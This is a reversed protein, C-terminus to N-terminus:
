HLSALVKRADAAGEFDPKLELARERARRAEVKDGAQSYALGLHYHFEPNQPEKGVAQKLLPVALSGLQKRIYVFALTDSVAANEPLAAKATQALQLARDLQEGRTAYMWALNNAAVPARPNTELLREYRLRAEQEKGQAQLVLAAMTQAGTSGPQRAALKDYEALAQDLKRQSVYIQALLAYADFNAPDADLARRLYEEAKAPDGTSAWTRAAVVLLDGDRPTERLRAEIRARALSGQRDSIDLTALAALPELM